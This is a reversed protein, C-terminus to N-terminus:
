DNKREDGFELMAAEFDEVSVQPVPRDERARNRNARRGSVTQFGDEDILPPYSEGGGVATVTYCRDKWSWVIDAKGALNYAKSIEQPSTWLILPSLAKDRTIIRMMGGYDISLLTKFLTFAEDGPGDKAPIARNLEMLVNIDDEDLVQKRTDFNDRLIVYANYLCQAFRPRARKHNHNHNHNHHSM